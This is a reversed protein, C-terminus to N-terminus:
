AGVNRLDLSILKAELNTLSSRRLSASILLPSQITSTREVIFGQTEISISQRVPKIEKIVRSPPLDCSCIGSNKSLISWDHWISTTLLYSFTRLYKKLHWLIMSQNLSLILLSLDRLTIAAFYISENICACLYLNISIDFMQTIGWSLFLRSRNMIVQSYSMLEGYYEINVSQRQRL